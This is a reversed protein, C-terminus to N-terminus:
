VTRGPKTNLIAMDGGMQRDLIQGCLLMATWAQNQSQVKGLHCLIKDGNCYFSHLDCDLIQLLSILLKYMDMRM